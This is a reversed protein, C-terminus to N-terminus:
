QITEKLEKLNITLLIIFILLRNSKYLNNQTNNKNLADLFKELHILIQIISAMYCSEGANNLGIKSKIILEKDFDLKKQSSM